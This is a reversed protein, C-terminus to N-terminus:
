KWTNPLSVSGATVRSAGIEGNAQSGTATKRNPVPLAGAMKM